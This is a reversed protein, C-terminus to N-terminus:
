PSQLHKWAEGRKISQIAGKTINYLKSIDVIRAGENLLQKIEIVQETKLKPM